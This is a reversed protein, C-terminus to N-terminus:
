WAHLPPTVCQASAGSSSPLTIVIAQPWFAAFPSQKRATLSQSNDIFKLRGGRSWALKAITWILDLAARHGRPVLWEDANVDELIDVGGIMLEGRRVALLIAAPWFVVNKRAFGM